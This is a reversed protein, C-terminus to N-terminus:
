LKDTMGLRSILHKLVVLSGVRSPTNREELRGLLFPIVHASYKMTILEICRLTEKNNKIVMEMEKANDPVPMCIMGHLQGLLSMLHPELLHHAGSNAEELVLSLGQTIPLFNREKRYLQLMAPVVRPVAAAYHEVSLVGCIHGMAEITAM